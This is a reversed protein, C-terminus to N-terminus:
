ATSCSVSVSADFTKAAGGGGSATARAESYAYAELTHTGPELEATQSAIEVGDLLVAAGSNNFDDAEGDDATSVTCAIQVPADSVGFSIAVDSSVGVYGSAQEGMASTSASVHGHTTIAASFDLQGGADDADTSHDDSASVSVSAGGAGASDSFAPKSERMGRLPEGSFMQDSTQPTINDGGGGEASAGGSILSAYAREDRTFLEVTGSGTVTVTATAQKTPDARSAATVTYTGPTTSATYFGGPGASSAQTITGGGASVGWDVRTDDADHVTAVFQQTDSPDLTVTTPAIDISLVRCERPQGAGPTYPVKGVPCTVDVTTKGLRNPGDSTPFWAPKSSTAKVVVPGPEMPATFHGSPDITGKEASWTFSTDGSEESTATFDRTKGIEVSPGAPTVTIKPECERIAAEFEGDLGRLAGGDNLAQGYQAGRLLLKAGEDFKHDQECDRTGDDLIKRLGTRIDELVLERVSPSALQEALGAIRVACEIEQVRGDRDADAPSGNCPGSVALPDTPATDHILDYMARVLTNRCDLLGAPVPKGLVALDGEILLIVRATAELEHVFAARAAEHCPGSTDPSRAFEGIVQLAEGMVFSCTPDSDCFGAHNFDPLMDFFQAAIHLTMPQSAWLALLNQFDRLSMNATAAASFHPIDILFASGDRRGREFVVDRGEDSAILGVPKTLGRAPTIRLEAPEAFRLGDPAFQVGHTTAKGGPLGAVRAIPTMTIPTQVDLAGAPVTLEYRTGNAGTATLKGGGTGIEAAVARARDLKLSLRGTFGRRVRLRASRQRTGTRFIVRYRGPKLRPVQFTVRRKSRSLVRTRKGGIAVKAKKMRAGTATVIQGPVAVKESLRLGPKAADAGATNGLDLAGLVAVAALSVLLSGRRAM